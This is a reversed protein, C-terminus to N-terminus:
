QVREWNGYILADVLAQKRSRAAVLYDGELVNQDLYYRVRWTKTWPVTERETVQVAFVRERGDADHVRIWLDAGSFSIKIDPDDDYHRFLVHRLM